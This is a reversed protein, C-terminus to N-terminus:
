AVAGDENTTSIYTKAFIKNEYSEQLTKITFISKWILNGEIIIGQTHLVFYMM